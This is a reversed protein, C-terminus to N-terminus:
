AKKNNFTDNMFRKLNDVKLIEPVHKKTIDKIKEITEKMSKKM